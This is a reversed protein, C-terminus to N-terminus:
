RRVKLRLKQCYENLKSVMSTIVGWYLIAICTVCLIYGLVSIYSFAFFTNYFAYAVTLITIICFKTISYDVYFYHNSIITRLTFFVIYSVGTSIAAGKCGWFPVLIINGVINTVCSVAAVLINMKTKKSFGIGICTSESITYMIPNFILFPLIYAAERYKSGLLLSFIDKVLILSVGLFFMLVTIYQNGIRYLRKDNKDKAYQENVMPAWLTNFTTQLIAFIHVLSMASSYIGVETYSCYYNLSMKDISQFVTTIGNSLIFPSGFMIIEKSSIRNKDVPLEPIWLEKQSYIAVIAPIAYSIITAIVMLRFYNGSILKVTALVLVVYVIKQLISSVSYLVSKYSIRLVLQSFRNLMLIVIHIFLFIATDTSFEFQIINLGILPIVVVGVVLAIAFPIKWCIYILDRRYKKDENRYYFRILSQDMGLCFVMLGINAYMTFVSWQGYQVPDIIRTILPTTFLGVVLNLFSAGGIILFHSVISRKKDGM